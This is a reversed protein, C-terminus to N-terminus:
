SCNGTQRQLPVAFHFTRCKRSMSYLLGRDRASMPMTSAGPWGPTEAVSAAHIIIADAVRDDESGSGRCTSRASVSASPTCSM